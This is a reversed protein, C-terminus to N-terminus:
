AAVRKQIFIWACCEELWYLYSLPIDSYPPLWVTVLVMRVSIRIAPERTRECSPLPLPRGAPASSIRLLHVCDGGDDETDKEDKEGDAGVVRVGETAIVLGVTIVSIYLTSALHCANDEWWHDKNKRSRGCRRGPQSHPPASSESTCSRRHFHYRTRGPTSPTYGDHHHRGRRPTVWDRRFLAKHLSTLPNSSPPWMCLSQSGLCLKLSPPM